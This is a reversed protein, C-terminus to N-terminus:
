PGVGHYGIGTMWKHIEVDLKPFAWLLYALGLWPQRIGWEAFWILLGLNGAAFRSYSYSYGGLYLPLEAMLFTVVGIFKWHLGARRLFSVSAALSLYFLIHNIEYRPLHNKLGEVISFSRGWRAQLHIFYLPDGKAIYNWICYGMLPFVGALIVLAVERFSLRKKQGEKVFYQLGYTGLFAGLVWIGQPRSVSILGALVAGQTWEKKFAANILFILLILFLPEPYGYSFFQSFPFVAVMLGLMWATWPRGLYSGLSGAKWWGSSMSILVAVMGISLANSLLITVGHGSLGPLLLQLLRLLAPYLPFFAGTHQDFLHARGLHLPCDWRCLAEFDM